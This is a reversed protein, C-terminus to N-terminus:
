YIECTDAYNPPTYSFSDILVISEEATSGLLTIYGDFISNDTITVKLKNWGEVFHDNSAYYLQFGAVTDDGSPVVKKALVIIYDLNSASKMFTNVEVVGGPMMRFVFSSICSSTENPAIFTKSNPDITDIALSYYDGLHWSSYGNCLVNDTDFSNEFNTEFNYTVCEEGTGIPAVTTIPVPTTVEIVEDDYIKCEEATLESPIYRFSDVLVISKPSASGLFSIYGNFTGSASLVIRLVQWGEAYNSSLPSVGASGIVVDSAEDVIKNVLVTIQDNPVASQIYVNVEVVGGNSAEFPFSSICSIFEQPSIFQLSESSTHDIPLSTYQDLKWRSFGTCLGRDSDFLEEFDSEFNYAVCEESETPEPEVPSSTVFDGDYVHCDDEYLPPIYRFSDIIVKSGPSAVGLFTVYGSFIGTGFLNIRLVHWGNFYNTSLPTLMTTGTVVNNGSSSVENALVVIQDRQSTSEMYVYVEVVGTSKMEFGYSSVCSLNEDPTIFLDTEKNPSHLGISSYNGLQWSAMGECLSNGHNFSDDFNTEFDYTVCNECKIASVALLLVFLCKIYEVM